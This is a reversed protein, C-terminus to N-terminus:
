RNQCVPWRGPGAKRYLRVARADQEVESAAAPDGTGGVERWTGYDFQYKGRYAGTPSVATPDGGSECRAIRQLHARIYQASTRWVHRYHRHQV